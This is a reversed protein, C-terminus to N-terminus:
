AIDSFKSRTRQDKRRPFAAVERRRLPRVPLDLQRGAVPGFGAAPHTQGADRTAPAIEQAGPVGVCVKPDLLDQGITVVEGYDPECRRDPPEGPM